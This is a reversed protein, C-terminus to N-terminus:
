IFCLDLMMIASSHLHFSFECIRWNEDQDRDFQNEELRETGCEHSKADNEERNDETVRTKIRQQNSHM